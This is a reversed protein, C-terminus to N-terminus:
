KIVLILQLLRQLKLYFFKFKYLKRMVSNKIHELTEYIRLYESTHTHTYIYLLTIHISSLIYLLIHIFIYITYIHVYINIYAIYLM